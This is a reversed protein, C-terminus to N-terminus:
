THFSFECHSLGMGASQYSHSHLDPRLLLDVECRVPSARKEGAAVATETDFVM